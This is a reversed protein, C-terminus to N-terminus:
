LLYAAKANQYFMANKEEECFLQSKEFMAIMQRYTANCLTGPIDSGWITKDPGFRDTFERVMSVPTPFPYGEADFFAVLASIDFWVNSRNALKTMRIWRQYHDSGKEMNADPFGLHCIVFHTDPYMATVKELAEVQYGRYGIKSPDITITIGLVGAKDYVKRMLPNDFSFDPYMSPSTYGLGESMEFKLVSLGCARYHEMMELCSEEQRIILAGAFRGPYQKLMEVTYELNTGINALILAKEVNNNDMIALLTEFSFSGDICLEPFMQVIEGNPFQMRGNALQKVGVANIQGIKVQPAVHVHADIIRRM